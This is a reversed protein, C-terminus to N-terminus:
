GKKGTRKGTIEAAMEALSEEKWLVLAPDTQLELRYGDVDGILYAGTKLQDLQDSNLHKSLKASIVRGYSKLQRSTVTIEVTGAKVNLRASVTYPPTLTTEPWQAYEQIQEAVYSPQMTHAQYFVGMAPLIYSIKGQQVANFMEESGCFKNLWWGGNHAQNVALNLKAVVGTASSKTPNQALNRVSNLLAVIGAGCCAWKPGGFAGGGWVGYRFINVLPRVTDRHTTLSSKIHKTYVKGRDPKNGGKPRWHRAEGNLAVTGLRVMMAAAFGIWKSSEGTMVASNHLAILIATIIPAGSGVPDGVKYKDGIVVGQLMAQPDFDGLEVNAPELIQGVKPSIEGFIVPIEKTISHISFHDTLAGGPHWVVVGEQGAVAEIEKEWELDQYVLPDAKIVKTVETVKPIYDGTAQKLALGARVQTVVPSKSDTPLVLELYPWQPQKIGVSDLLYQAAINLGVFPITTTNKGATAGDHGSGIVLSNKTLIGSCTPKIFPCLIVEGGPDDELVQKLIAEVESPEKVIKSDFYGHRPLSPAPRAFWPYGLKPIHTPDQIFLISSLGQLGIQSPLFLGKGKQTRPITLLASCAFCKIHTLYNKALCNHCVKM